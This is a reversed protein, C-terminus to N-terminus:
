YCTCPAVPAAYMQQQIVPQPTAVGAQPVYTQAPYAAAPAYAPQAPYAQPPYCNGNAFSGGRQWCCMRCCGSFCAAALVAGVLLSRNM